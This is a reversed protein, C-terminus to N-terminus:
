FSRGRRHLRYEVYRAGALDRKHESVIDFGEERLEGIRAALRPLKYVLLAEYSTITGRRRLHELVTERQTRGRADTLVINITDTKM